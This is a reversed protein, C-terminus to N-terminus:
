KDKVDLERRLWLRFLVLTEAVDMGIAASRLDSDGKRLWTSLEEGYSLLDM